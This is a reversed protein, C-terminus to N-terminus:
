WKTIKVYTGDDAHVEVLPGHDAAHLASLALRPEFVEWDWRELARHIGEVPVNCLVKADDADVSVHLSGDEMYIHVKEDPTLVEVLSADPMDALAEFAAMVADKQARLEEPVVADELAEDPIFALAVDAVVLPFPINFHFEEPAPTDVKVVVWDMVAVATLLGAVASIVIAGLTSVGRQNM